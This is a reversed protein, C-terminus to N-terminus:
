LNSKLFLPLCLFYIAGTVNEKREMGVRRGSPLVLSRVKFLLSRQTVARANGQVVKRGLPATTTPLKSEEHLWKGTVNGLEGCVVALLWTVDGPCRLVPAVSGWPSQWSCSLQSARLEWPTQIPTQM